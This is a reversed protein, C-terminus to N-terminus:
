AVCFQQIQLCSLHDRPTRRSFPRSCLPLFLCPRFICLSHVEDPLGSEGVIAETFPNINDFLKTFRLKMLMQAYFAFIRLIRM